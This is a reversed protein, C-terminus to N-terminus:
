RHFSCLGLQWMERGVSVSGACPRAGTDTSGAEVNGSQTGQQVNSAGPFLDPTCLGRAETRQRGTGERCSAVSIRPVRGPDLLDYIPLPGVQETKFSHGLNLAASM